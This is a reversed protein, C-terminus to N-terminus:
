APGTFVITFYFKGDASVRVGIGMETYHSNLINERHPPSDWLAQDAVSVAQAAPYNNMALNEGAWAYPVGYAEMLSFATDGTVPSTHAFYNNTAMDQSRIRAVGVLYGNARLPPLGMSARRANTADFLAQEYAGMPSTDLGVGIAPAPTATPPPPPPPPPAVTPQVVPATPQPAPLTPQSRALTPDAIAPEPTPTPPPPLAALSEFFESLELTEGILEADVLAVGDPIIAPLPADVAMTERANYTVPPSESVGGTASSAFVLVTSLATAALSGVIAGAVQLPVIRRLVSPRSADPM